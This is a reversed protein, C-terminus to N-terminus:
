AGNRQVLEISFITAAALWKVSSLQILQKSGFDMLHVQNFFPQSAISAQVPRSWTHCTWEAKSVGLFCSQSFPRLCDLGVSGFFLWQLQLQVSAFGKQLSNWDPVFPFKLPLRQQFLEGACGDSVPKWFWGHWTTFYFVMNQLVFALGHTWWGFRFKSCRNPMLMVFLCSLGTVQRLIIGTDSPPLVSSPGPCALSTLFM